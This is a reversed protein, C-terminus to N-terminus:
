DDTWRQIVAVAGHGDLDKGVVLVREMGSTVLDVGLVCRIIGSAPVYGCCDGESLLRVHEGLREVVVLATAEDMRRNLGAPVVVAQVSGARVMARELAGAVSDAREVAALLARPRRGAERAAHLDELVVFGCGEDTAVGGSGEHARATDRPADEGQVWCPSFVSPCSEDGAGVVVAPASGEVLLSAAEWLSEEGSITSDSIALSPGRLGGFISLYGLSANHVSNHFSTPSIGSDLGGEFIRCAVTIEGYATGFVSGLPTCEDPVRYGAGELAHMGGGVVMSGLRTMRRLMRRPISSALAEKVQPADDTKRPGTYVRLTPDGPTRPVVLATSMIALLTM